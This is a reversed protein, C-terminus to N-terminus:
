IHGVLDVFDHRESKKEGDDSKAQSAQLSHSNTRSKSTYEASGEWRQEHVPKYKYKRQYKYKSEASGEWRQEHVPKYKYEDKQIYREPIQKTNTNLVAREYVSQFKNKKPANTKPNINTNTNPMREGNFICM